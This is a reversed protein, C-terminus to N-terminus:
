KMADHRRAAETEKALCSSQRKSFIVPRARLRTNSGHKFNLLYGPQLNLVFRFLWGGWTSRPVLSNQKKKFFFFKPCIRLWIIEFTWKPSISCTRFIFSAKLYHLSEKSLVREVVELRAAEHCYNQLVPILNIFLNLISKLTCPMVGFLLHLHMWYPWKTLVWTDKSVKGSHVAVHRNGTGGGEFLEPGAKIVLNGQWVSCCCFSLLYTPQTFM